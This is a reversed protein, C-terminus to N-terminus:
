RKLTIRYVAAELGPCGPDPIVGVPEGGNGAIVKRSILNEPGTAVTMERMGLRVAQVMLLALGRTAHGRNRAWPVVSYGVHGAQGAPVAMTSTTWRLTLRGVFDPGHWMWFTRASIGQPDNETMYDLFLRRNERLIGLTEHSVDRYTNPSWGRALAAEYCRLWRLSPKGLVLRKHGLCRSLRGLAPLFCLAPGM